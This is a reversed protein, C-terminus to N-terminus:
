ARKAKIVSALHAMAPFKREFEEPHYHLLLHCNSCMRTCISLEKLLVDERLKWSTGINFNKEAPDNHHFVIQVPDYIGLCVLCDNSKAERKIRNNRDRREIDFDRKRAACDTAGPCDSPYGCNNCGQRKCNDGRPM